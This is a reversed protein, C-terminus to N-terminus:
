KLSEMKITLMKNSQKRQNFKEAKQVFVYVNNRGICLVCCGTRLRNHFTLLSESPFRNMGRMMSVDDNQVHSITMKQIIM